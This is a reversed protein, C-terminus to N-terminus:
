AIGLNRAKDTKQAAAVLILLANVNRIAEARAAEIARPPQRQLTVQKLHVCGGLARRGAKEISSTVVINRLAWKLADFDMHRLNDETSAILTGVLDTLHDCSARNETIM